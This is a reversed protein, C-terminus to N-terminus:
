IASLVFAREPERMYTRTCTHSQTRVVAKKLVKYAPLQESSSRVAIGTTASTRLRALLNILNRARTKELRGPQNCVGKKAAVLKLSKLDSSNLLTLTGEKM